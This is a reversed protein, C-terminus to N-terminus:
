ADAGGAFKSVAAEVAAALKDAGDQTAAEAYVRVVDETGSPRVFSRGLEYGAVLKDIAEQLGAPATVRTETDNPVVVTRDAVRVTTQRSPTNSYLAAWQPLGWGRIALCAEVMLMDSLADGVGQNILQYSALLRGLALQQRETLDGSKGEAGGLSQASHIARLKEVFSPKFLM